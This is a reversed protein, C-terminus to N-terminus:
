RRIASAIYHDVADELADVDLRQVDMDVSDVDLLRVLYAVRLQIRNKYQRNYEDASITLGTRPDIIMVPGAGSTLRSGTRAPASGLDERILDLIIVADSYKRMLESFYADSRGREFEDLSGLLQDRVAVFHPNDREAALRYWAAALGPNEPVGAGTLHIFGVMYQAYKDGIPALENEYIFLARQYEGADFLDEVKQQVRMTRSDIHVGPFSDLRQAVATVTALLFVAAVSLALKSILTEQNQATRKQCHTQTAGPM